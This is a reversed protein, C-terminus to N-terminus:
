FNMKLNTLKANMIYKEVSVCVTVLNELQDVLVWNNIIHQM